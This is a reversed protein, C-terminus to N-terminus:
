FFPSINNFNTVKRLFFLFLIYLKSVNEEQMNFTYDCPIQTVIEHGPIQSLHHLKTGVEINSPKIWDGLQDVYYNVKESSIGSLHWLM